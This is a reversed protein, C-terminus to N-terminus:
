GFLIKVDIEVLCRLGQILISIYVLDWIQQLRLVYYLSLEFIGFVELLDRRHDVTRRM